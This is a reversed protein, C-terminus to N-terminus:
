VVRSLLRKMVTKRRKAPLGSKSSRDGGGCGKVKQKWARRLGDEEKEEEEEEEEEV